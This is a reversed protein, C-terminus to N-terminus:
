TTTQDPRRAIRQYNDIMVDAVAAWNFHDEVLKRATDGMAAWQPERSLLEHLGRAIDQPYPECRIFANSSAFYNFGCGSTVLCPKGCGLADLIALSFGESFSPMVYADASEIADYKPQGYLPGVFDFNERCGLQESLAIYKAANGRYDPGVLICVLRDRQSRPLSSVAKILSRLNKDERLVGVWILKTRDRYPKGDFFASSRTSPIEAIDIGNHAVFSPGSYGYKQLGTGEERTLTHIETAMELYEREFMWKAVLRKGTYAHPNSYTGHATIIFPVGAKKLATAIINKDYFWILHFHVLDISDKERLLDTVIPNKGWSTRVRPFCEVSVFEDRRHTFREKVGDVIAWIESQVGKLKEYKNLFYVVRSIGNHENPNAKGHVIHIVRM